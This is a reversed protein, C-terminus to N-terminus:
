DVIQHAKFGLKALAVEAYSTSDLYHNDGTRHYQKVEGKDKKVVVEIQENVIHKRYTKHQDNPGAFLAISGPKGRPLRFARHVVSKWYDANAVVKFCKRKRDIEQHWNSGIEIISRGVGKPSIYIKDGHFQGSGAGFIPQMISKRSKGSIQHIAAIVEDTLYNADCFIKQPYMIGGESTDHRYGKMVGSYFDQLAKLIAPYADEKIANITIPGYDVCHVVGRKTGALLVWWGVTLGMDLGAALHTADEPIVGRPYEDREHKAIDSVTLPQVELEMGPDYPFAWSFQLLAKLANTYDPSDSDIQALRWEKVALSATSAFMNHWASYRVWLRNTEIPTGAPQGNDDIFQGAHLLVAKAVMERRTEDDIKGGCEPCEWYALRGAEGSSEADQWGVLNEREPSVFEGCIPCESVIKTETSDAKAVWPLKDATQVTGEVILVRDEADFAEQRAMLQQLPNAESSNEIGESWGAAETVIVVRSTYGARRQDNGGKSMVRMRVGTTLTLSDKIKGGRSGPGSGPILPQMKPSTELVPLLDVKFKDDGMTQDPIGLILSEALETTYYLVPACFAVTTKGSQSPGLIYMETWKRSDICDVILKHVPQTDFSYREFERPGPPPMIIEQEMWERMSRIESQQVNQMVEILGLDLSSIELPALM